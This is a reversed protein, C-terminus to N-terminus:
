RTCELSEDDPLNTLVHIRTHKAHFICKSPKFKSPHLSSFQHALFERVFLTWALPDRGLRVGSRAAVLTADGVFDKHSKQHSVM